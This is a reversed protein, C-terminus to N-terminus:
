KTKKLEVWEYDQFSSFSIVQDNKDRNFKILGERGTFFFEDKTFSQLMAKEGGAYGALYPAEEKIEVNFGGIAYTGAFDKLAPHYNKKIWSTAHSDNAIIKRICQMTIYLQQYNSNTLIIITQQLSTDVAILNAFGNIHGTHFILGPLLCWGSSYITNGGNLLQFPQVTTKIFENKKLQQQFFLSWALMDEANCYMGGGGKANGMELWPAKVFKGNKPIYSAAMKDAIVVNDDEGSNKMGAPTFIQEQLLTDFKKNTIKEALLALLYFNSNCYQYKAAAPFQLPADAIMKIISDEAYLVTENFNRLNTYDALGSTHTLLHNITIATKGTNKFADFYNSLKDNVSLKGQECLQLIMFATFQKSISGLRFKSNKEHKIDWEINAKGLTKEYVIHNKQAVLVVGNFNFQRAAYNLLSDILRFQNQGSVKIASFCIFIFIYKKM